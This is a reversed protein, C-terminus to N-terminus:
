YTGLVCDHCDRNVHAEDDSLWETGLVDCYVGTDRDNTLESSMFFM